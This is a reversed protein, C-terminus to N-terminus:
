QASQGAVVWRGLRALTEGGRYTALARLEGATMDSPLSLCTGDFTVAQAGAPHLSRVSKPASSNVGRALQVIDIDRPESWVVGCGHAEVLLLTQDRGDGAAVAASQPNASGGFLTSPGTVLLYSTEQNLSQDAPCRFIAPPASNALAGNHTSDWPEALHFNAYVAQAEAGLYPLILVRWSYLPKGQPDMVVPPPLQGHDQEYAQLALAIERLQQHCTMLRREASSVTWWASAYQRSAVVFIALTSLLAVSAALMLGLQDRRWVRRQRAIRGHDAAAPITIELGCDACPGSRGAFQEDVETRRGCHPCTFPIAM